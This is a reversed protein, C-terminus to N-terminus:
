KFIINGTALAHTLIGISIIVSHVLLSICILIVYLFLAERDVRMNDLDLFGPQVPKKEDEIFDDIVYLRRDDNYPPHM